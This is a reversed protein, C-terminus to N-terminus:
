ALPCTFISFEGTQNEPGGGTSLPEGKGHLVRCGSAHSAVPGAWCDSFRGRWSEAGEICFIHAKIIKRVCFVNMNEYNM